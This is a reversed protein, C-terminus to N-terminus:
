NREFARLFERLSATSEFRIPVGCRTTGRGTHKREPFNRMNSNHYLDGLEGRGRAAEAAQDKLAPDVIVKLAKVGKDLYVYRPPVGGRFLALKNTDHALSFGSGHFAGLRTELEVRSIRSHTPTQVKGFWDSM